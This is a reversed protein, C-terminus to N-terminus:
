EMRASSRGITRTRRAITRRRGGLLGRARESRERRRGTLLCLNDQLGYLGTLREPGDARGVIEFLDALIVVGFGTAVVGAPDVVEDLPDLLGLVGLVRGLLAVDGLM